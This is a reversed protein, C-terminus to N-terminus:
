MAEQGLPCADLAAATAKIVEEVPVTALTRSGHPTIVWEPRGLPVASGPGVSNMLMVVRKGMAVALHLFGTDGGVVVTSVKIL